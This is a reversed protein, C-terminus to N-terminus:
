RRQGRPLPVVNNRPRERMIAAIAAALEEQRYPKNLRPVDTEEGEPLEAYGTALIIPLDPWRQQVARALELGNMGPMAFDTVMLAPTGRELAALAAPGSAAIDVAHGLDELMAATGAQILPDDDVVLISLPRMPLAALAAVGNAKGAAEAAAEVPDAVPLWLEITTGEGPASRIRLLGGSQAALGHVMSLGLGSGKGPGKTTFFPETARKLTAADMGSGTDAVASASIGAM